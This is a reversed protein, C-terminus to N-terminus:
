YDKLLAKNKFGMWQGRWFIGWRGSGALNAFCAGAAARALNQSGTAPPSALPVVKNLPRTEQPPPPMPPPHGKSQGHFIHTIKQADPIELIVPISMSSSLPLLVVRPKPSFTARLLRTALVFVCIGASTGLQLLILDKPVMQHSPHVWYADVNWASGRTNLWYIYVGVNWHVSGAVTMWKTVHPFPFM